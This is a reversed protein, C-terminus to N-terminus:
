YSKLEGGGFITSGKIVLTRSPDLNEKINVRKDSFGGFVSTIKLQVKWDSPVILNVGGFITNVELESVGEALSAQTLDIEAGGFVCNVYGGHFTQHIIRHKSHSFINDERIYGEEIPKESSVMHRWPRRSSRKTLLLVGIAILVLPWFVHTMNFTVLFIKPLLFFGGIILLIYGPMRSESGFLSIIGICILLMPWSFFIHELPFPLFGSNSLLLLFGAFIVIVALVYKRMQRSNSYKNTNPDM